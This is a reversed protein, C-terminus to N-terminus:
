QPSTLANVPTSTPTQLHLLPTLTSTEPTPSTRTNINTPVHKCTYQPSFHEREREKERESDGESERESESEIEARFRTHLHCTYQTSVYM